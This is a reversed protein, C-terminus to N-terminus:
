TTASTNNLAHSNSSTEPVRWYQVGGTCEGLRVIVTGLILHRNLTIEELHLEYDLCLQKKMAMMEIWDELTPKKDDCGM